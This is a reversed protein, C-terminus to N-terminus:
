LYVYPGSTINQGGLDSLPWKYGMKRLMKQKAGKKAIKLFSFSM